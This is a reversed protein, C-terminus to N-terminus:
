FLLAARFSVGLLLERALGPALGPILPPASRSQPAAYSQALGLVHTPMRMWHGVDTEAFTPHTGIRALASHPAVTNSSLIALLIYLRAIPCLFCRRIYGRALM